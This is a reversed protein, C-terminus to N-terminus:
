TEYKKYDGRLGNTGTSTIGHIPQFTITLNEHIYSLCHLIRYPVALFQKDLQTQVCLYGTCEGGRRFHIQEKHYVKRAMSSHGPRDAAFANLFLSSKVM